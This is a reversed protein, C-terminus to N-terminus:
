HNSRHQWGQPTASSDVPATFLLYLFLALAVMGAFGIAIRYTQETSAKGVIATRIYKRHIVLHVSILAVFVLSCYYHVDGWQHRTLGWIESAGSRPPLSFEILIGTVIMALLFLFSLFDIYHILQRQSM